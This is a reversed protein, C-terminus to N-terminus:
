ISYVTHSLHPGMIMNILFCILLRPKLHSPFPAQVLAKVCQWASYIRIMNRLVCLKNRQTFSPVTLHLMSQYQLNFKFPKDFTCLCISFYFMSAFCLNSYGLNSVLVPCLFKARIRTAEVEIAPKPHNLGLKAVFLADIGMTEHESGRDKM